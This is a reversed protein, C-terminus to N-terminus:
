KKCKKITEPNIMFQNTCTDRLEKSSNNGFHANIVKKGKEIVHKAAPALDADGSLLIALGYENTDALALLDVAIRVDVGKERHQRNAGIAQVFATLKRLCEKCFGLTKAYYDINKQSAENIRQLKGLHITLNPNKKLETHFQQQKSYQKPNDGLNKLADYFRVTPNKRKTITEYFKLMDITTPDIDLKRLSHYVNSADVFLILKKETTEEPM